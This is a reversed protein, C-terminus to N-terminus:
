SPPTKLMHEMGASSFIELTMKESYRNFAEILDKKGLNDVVTRFPRQGKPTEILSQIAKAVHNSDQERKESLLKEFNSVLKKPAEGIEGYAKIRTGDSPTMLNKLFLTAHGGPEVICTEIGFASLEARSTEAMAELAWKSATYPGYFPLAMRGLLSSVFVILGSKKERM